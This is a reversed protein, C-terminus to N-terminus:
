LSSALYHSYYKQRAEYAEEQTSFRGLRIKKRNIYICCEWKNKDWYVGVYKSTTPAGNNIKRKRAKLQNNTMTLNPNLNEDRNDLTDGNIHDTVLGPNSPKILQHMGTTTRHGIADKSSITYPYFTKSGSSYMAFFKLHKIKEWSSTTVMCWQGQTLEVITEGNTLNCFKNFLKKAM